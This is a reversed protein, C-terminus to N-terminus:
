WVCARSLCIADRHACYEWSACAKRDVDPLKTQPEDQAPIGAGSSSSPEAGEAPGLQQLLNQVMAQNERSLTVAQLAEGGTKSGSAAAAKAKLKPAPADGRGGGASGGGKGGRRAHRGGGRNPGM